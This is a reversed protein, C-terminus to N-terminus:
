LLEGGNGGTPLKKTGEVQPYVPCRPVDSLKKFFDPRSPQGQWGRPYISTAPVFLYSVSPSFLRSRHGRHLYSILAAREGRHLVYSVTRGEVLGAVVDGVRVAVLVADHVLRVYRGVQYGMLYM